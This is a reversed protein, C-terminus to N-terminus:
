QALARVQARVTGLFNLLRCGFPLHSEAAMRGVQYNPSTASCPDITFHRTSGVTALRPTVKQQRSVPPPAIVPPPVLFIRCDAIGPLVQKFRAFGLPRWGPM